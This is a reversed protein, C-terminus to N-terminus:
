DLRRVEMGYDTSLMAVVRRLVEDLAAYESEGTAVPRPDDEITYDPYTIPDMDTRAAIAGITALSATVCHM